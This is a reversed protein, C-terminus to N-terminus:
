RRRIGDALREADERTFRDGMVGIQAVPSRVTPAALVQGDVIIALQRGLNASTASRLKAAGVDTFHVEVGFGGPRAVVRTETVDRNTLVVEPDLYIPRGSDPDVANRGRADPESGALRVEFQMAAHVTAESGMWAPSTILAGAVAAMAGALVVFRRSTGRQQRRGAAAEIVTRRVAQRREATPGTELSVPDAAALLDSITM